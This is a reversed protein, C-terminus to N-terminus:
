TKKNVEKVKPEGGAPPVLKWAYKNTYIDTRAKKKSNSGKRIESKRANENSTMTKAKAKQMEDTQATLALIQEEKVSPAQWL